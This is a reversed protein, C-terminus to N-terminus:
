YNIYFLYLLVILGTIFFFTNIKNIVKKDIGLLTHLYNYFIIFSFALPIHFLNSRPLLFMTEPYPHFVVIIQPEEIILYIFLCLSWLFIMLLFHYFFDILKEKM